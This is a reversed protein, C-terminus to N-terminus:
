AKRLFFECSNEFIHFKKVKLIDCHNEKILELFLDIEPTGILFSYATSLEERYTSLDM